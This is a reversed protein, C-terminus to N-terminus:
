RLLWDSGTEATYDSLLNSSNGEYYDSPNVTYYIGTKSDQCTLTGNESSVFVNGTTGYILKTSTLNIHAGYTLMFVLASQSLGQSNLYPDYIQYSFQNRHLSFGPGVTFIIDPRVRSFDSANVYFYPKGMIEGSHAALDKNVSDQINGSIVWNVYLGQNVLLCLMFIVAFIAMNKQILSILLLVFALLLFFDVFILYRSEVFGNASILIYSFFAGIICFIIFRTVQEKYGASVYGPDKKLLNAIYHCILWSIIVDLVILLCVAPVTLNMLGLVGYVVNVVTVGISTIVDHVLNTIFNTLFHASLYNYNFNMYVWGFGFWDTIRILMYAFPPLVFWIAQKFTRKQLIDYFIYVIPLFAGIQYIFVAGAYFIWALFFYSRKERSQMYCYFSGFYLIYAINDYFLDAWPYLQDKNFLLCFCAAFLLACPAPNQFFLKFLSKATIYVVLLLITSLVFNLVHYWLAVSGFADVAIKILIYQGPRQSEFLLHLFSYQNFDSYVVQVWDDSVFKFSGIFLYHTLINLCILVIYDM